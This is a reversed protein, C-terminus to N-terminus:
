DEEQIIDNMYKPHLKGLNLSGRGRTKVPSLSEENEFQREGKLM